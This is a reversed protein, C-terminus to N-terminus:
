QQVTLFIGPSHKFVLWSANSGDKGFLIGPLFSLSFKLSNAYNEKKLVGWANVWELTVAINEDYYLNYSEVPIETWGASKCVVFINKPLLEEGPVGDRIKRIHLRILVSDFGIYAVNFNVKEVFVPKRVEILTGREGGTSPGGWGTVFFRSSSKRGLSSRKTKTSTVLVNSLEVPQEKLRITNEANPLQQISFLRSEFGIMSIKIQATRMAEPITLVFLGNQNTIAGIPQGIVGVTCYVLPEGNADNVIKGKIVQASSSSYSLFLILACFFNM